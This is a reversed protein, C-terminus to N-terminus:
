DGAPSWNHFEPRWLLTKLRMPSWSLAIESGPTVVSIKQDFGPSISYVSELQRPEVTCTSQPFNQWPCFKRWCTEFIESTLTQLAIFVYWSWIDVCIFTALLVLWKTLYTSSNGALCCVMNGISHIFEM